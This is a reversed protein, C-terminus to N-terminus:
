DFLRSLDNARQQVEECVPKLIDEVPQYRRLINNNRDLISQLQARREDMEGLGITSAGPGVAASNGLSYELKALEAELLQNYLEYYEPESNIYSFGASINSNDIHVGADLLKTGASINLEIGLQLQSAVMAGEEDLRIVPPSYSTGSFGFKAWSADPIGDKAIDLGIDVSLLETSIGGEWIAGSDKNIVAGKVEFSAAAGEFGGVSAATKWDKLIADTSTEAGLKLDFNRKLFGYDIYTVSANGKDSFNVLAVQGEPINELYHGLSVKAETSLAQFQEQWNNPFTINDSGM